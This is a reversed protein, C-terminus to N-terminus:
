FFIINKVSFANNLFDLYDRDYKIVFDNIFKVISGLFIEM